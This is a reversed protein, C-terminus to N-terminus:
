YINTFEDSAKFKFSMKNIKNLVREKEGDKLPTPQYNNKNSVSSISCPIVKLQYGSLLKDEYNLKVQVIMTDKDGPNSNGGFSFNGLSYCILKNKYVEMGQLVHPHHGIILDAGNDIAFKSLKKQVDNPYYDREIGAHFSVSVFDVKDKLAKIDSKMKPLISDNYALVEYGLFGFKVGDIEKIYSNEYGFYGVNSKKLTSITDEYGVQLYDHSHNNAINVAEISGKTLINVYDKPAKFKFTKVAVKTSDTFTGELNVITLSDKSFIPYVNKFYYSYDKNNKNFVDIFNGSPSFNSDTGLTCDGAFSLIFENKIIEKVPEVIPEKKEEPAKAEIVPNQTLPKSKVKEYYYFTAGIGFVLIFIVVNRLIVLKNNRRKEVM